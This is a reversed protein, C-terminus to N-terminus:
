RVDGWIRETVWLVAKGAAWAVPVVRLVFEAFAGAMWLAERAVGSM